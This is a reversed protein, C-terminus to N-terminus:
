RSPRSRNRTTSTRSWLRDSPAAVPRTRRSRGNSGPVGSAPAQIYTAGPHPRHASPNAPQAPADPRAPESGRQADRRVEGAIESGDETANENTDETDADAQSPTEASVDQEVPTSQDSPENKEHPGDPQTPEDPGAQLPADEAVYLGARPDAPEGIGDSQGGPEYVTSPVEIGRQRCFKVLAGRPIAPGDPVAETSRIWGMRVWDTVASASVGLLDAVQAASFTRDSVDSM